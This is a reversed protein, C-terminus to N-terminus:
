EDEVSEPVVVHDPPINKPDYEVEDSDRRDIVTHHIRAPANHKRCLGGIDRSKKLYFWGWGSRSDHTKKTLPKPNLGERWGEIFGLGRQEAREMMWELSIDSLDNELYGGGVDSHMGAFWVQEITQEENSPDETWLTPRFVKRQDDVALAHFAFPVGKDLETNHFRHRYPNLRDMWRIPIGLAGVTDWVGIFAIHPRISFMRKFDRAAKPNEEADKYLAYARNILARYKPKLLGCYSILGGLSRVTFAGRSFGFLFISDGKEYHEVLFEYCDRINKSIGAGFARRIIRPFRQTGLGMEYFAHESEQDTLLRYLTFVNSEQEVGGENGTGDACVIVNKSTTV